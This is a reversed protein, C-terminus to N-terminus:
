VAIIHVKLTPLSKTIQSSLMSSINEIMKMSTNSELIMLVSAFSLKAHKISGYVQTTYPCPYYGFPELINVLHNYALLAAQKLGYMGKKIKIYVYGDDATLEDINYEQWIHEFFYKSHVCMLENGEM